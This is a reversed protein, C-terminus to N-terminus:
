KLLTSEDLRACSTIYETEQWPHKWYSCGSLRAMSKRDMFCMQCRPVEAATTLDFVACALLSVCGQEVTCIWAAFHMGSHTVHRWVPSKFRSNYLKLLSESEEVRRKEKAASPKGSECARVTVTLTQWSVHYSGMFPLRNWSIRWKDYRQNKMLWLYAEETTKKNQNACILLCASLVHALLPVCVFVSGAERKKKINTLFVLM